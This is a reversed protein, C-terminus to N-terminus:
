HVPHVEQFNLITNPQNPTFRGDIPRADVQAVAVVGWPCVGLARGEAVAKEFTASAVSSSIRAIRARTGKRTVADPGRNVGDAMVCGVWCM